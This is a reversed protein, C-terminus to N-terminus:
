VVGLWNLFRYFINQKQAKSIDGDGSIELEVNAIQYSFISNGKSIDSTRILGSVNISQREGNILINQSGKIRLMGKPLVETITASLQTSVRGKRSTRGAGENNADIDMGVSVDKANESIGASIGTNREVGTGASAEAATAELVIVVIPEGVSYSKVDSSLPQYSDLNLEEAKAVLSFLVVFLLSYRLMSMKKEQLKEM